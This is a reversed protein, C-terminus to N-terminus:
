QTTRASATWVYARCCVHLCVCNNTTAHISHIHSAREHRACGQIHYNLTGEQSLSVAKTLLRMWRHQHRFACIVDSHILVLLSIFPEHSLDFHGHRSTFLGLPVARLSILPPSRWVIYIQCSKRQHICITHISIKDLWLGTAVLNTLFITKYNPFHAWEMKQSFSLHYIVQM